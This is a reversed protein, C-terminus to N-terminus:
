RRGQMSSGTDDSQSGSGGSSESSAEQTDNNEDEDEDEYLDPFEVEVRGPPIKEVKAYGDSDLNGERVEGNPLFVRYKQDGLKNGEDDELNIEMWDKFKLLGSRQKLGAIEAVFFYYPASYGRVAKQDQREILDQDIELEWEEEVEDSQVETTITEFLHDAFNADKIYIKLTAAEGDELGATTVTMKVKDGVTAEMVGWRADKIASLSIDYSGEKIGTRKIRGFVKGDSVNDDPDKLTYKIGTVPFGGKDVVKVDLYHQEEPEEDVDSDSGEVAESAAAKLGSAAAKATSKATGGGGGGGGGSGILVTPCGPPLITAPPGVCTAMDGVCAAPLGGILVTPCGPPLIPGGVHPIPVVAPTQMPCTHMDGVRAAPKGGILVTPCGVVITGGHATMDGLRAAPKGM